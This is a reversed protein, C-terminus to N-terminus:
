SPRSSQVRAGAQTGILESGETGQNADAALSVSGAVVSLLLIWAILSGAAGHNEACQM